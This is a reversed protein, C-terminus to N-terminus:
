QAAERQALLGCSALANDVNDAVVDAGIDAVAGPDIATISGGIVVPIGAPCAQRVSKVIQRCAPVTSRNAASLFVADYRRETLDARIEDPEAMFLIRVSVGLRRMRSAALLASITHQERSPIVLLVRPGNAAGTQDATCAIGLERLLDQLRAFAITAQLVSMEDNHWANGIIAVAAPIYVDIVREGKIRRKRFEGQLHAFLKPDGVRAARALLQSVDRCAPGSEGQVAGAMQSVIRMALQGVAARDAGHVVGQLGLLGDM